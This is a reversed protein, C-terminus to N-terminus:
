REEEQAAAERRSTTTQDRGGNPRRRRRARKTFSSAPPDGPGTRTGAAREPKAIGTTRPPRPDALWAEVSEPRIRWHAGLREGALAGSRLARYVTRESAGVRRAVESVRLWAPEDPPRAAHAGLSEGREGLVEDLRLLVAEALLDLVDTRDSGGPPRPASGM